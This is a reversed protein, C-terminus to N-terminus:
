LMWMSEVERYYLDWANCPTPTARSAPWMLAKATTAVWYPCRRQQCSEDRRQGHTRISEAGPGGVRRTATLDPQHRAYVDRMAGTASDVRLQSARDALHAWVEGQDARHGRGARVSQSM